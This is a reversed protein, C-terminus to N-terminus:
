DPDDKQGGGDADIVESEKIAERVKQQFKKSRAGYLKAAFVAVIALMDQVMEQTADRTEQQELVEIEVGRFQLAEQIYAFGFRALRDKFEVLVVDVQDKAVLKFLKRLGRRNENLGSAQETIVAALHYGKGRAAEM